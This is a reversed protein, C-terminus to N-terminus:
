DEIDGAISKIFDIRTEIKLNQIVGSFIVCCMVPDGTLAEFGLLNFHKDQHSAVKNPVSVKRM